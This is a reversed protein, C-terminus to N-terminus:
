GVSVPLLETGGPSPPSPGSGPCPAEKLPSSFMRANTTVTSCPETFTSLLAATHRSVPAGRAMHTGAPRQQLMLSSGVSFCRSLQM